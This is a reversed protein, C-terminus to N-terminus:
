HGPPPPGARTEVRVPPPWSGHHSPPAVPRDRATRAPRAPVRVRVGFCHLRIDSLTTRVQHRFALGLLVLCLCLLFTMTM